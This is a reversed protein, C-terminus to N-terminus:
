TATTASSYYNETSLQHFQKIHLEVTTVDQISSVHLRERIAVYLM